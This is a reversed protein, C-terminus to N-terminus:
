NENNKTWEGKNALISNSTKKPANDLFRNIYDQDFNECSAEDRLCTERKLLFDEEVDIDKLAGMFNDMIEKAQKQIKEHDVM